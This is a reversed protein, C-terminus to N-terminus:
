TLTIQQLSLPLFSFWKWIDFLENQQIDPMSLITKIQKFNANSKFQPRLSFFSGIQEKKLPM